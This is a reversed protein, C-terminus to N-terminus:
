AHVGVRLDDVFSRGDRRMITDTLAPSCTATELLSDSYEVMFRQNLNFSVLEIHWTESCPFYRARM